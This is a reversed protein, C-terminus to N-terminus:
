LDISGNWWEKDFNAKYKEYFRIASENWDLVQWSVRHCAEMKATTLVEDFLAAGIGLGRYKEQVYFDELYLVKGKWTSYRFYFLAFGIVESNMEVVLSWFLPHSGFGDKKMQEASNIVENPAKEFIALEHVLNMIPEADGMEAKRIKYKM